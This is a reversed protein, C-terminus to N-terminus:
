QMNAYSVMPMEMPNVISQVNAGPNEMLFKDTRVRCEEEIALRQVKVTEKLFFLSKNHFVVPRNPCYISDRCGLYM